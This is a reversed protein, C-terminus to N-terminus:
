FNHKRKRKWTAPQKSSSVLSIRAWVSVRVGEKVVFDNLDKRDESQQPWSGLCVPCINMLKSIM